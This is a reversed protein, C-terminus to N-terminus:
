SLFKSVFPYLICAACINFFSELITFFALIGGLSYAVSTIGTYYFVVMLVTLAFGVNAAFLKPGANISIKKLGLAGTTFKSIRSVYSFRGDLIRRLLFDILALFIIWKFPTFLFFLVILLTISANIRAINEDIYNESIPCVLSM